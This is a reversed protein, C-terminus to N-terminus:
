ADDHAFVVFSSFRHLIVITSTIDIVKALNFCTILFELSRDLLNHAVYFGAKRIWLLSDDRLILSIITLHIENQLALVINNAQLEAGKSPYLSVLM